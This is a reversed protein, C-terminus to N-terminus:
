ASETEARAQQRAIFERRREGVHAKIAAARERSDARSHYDHGLFIRRANSNAVVRRGAATQRYRAHAAKGKATKQYTRQARRLQEARTESVM